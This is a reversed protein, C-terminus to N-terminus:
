VRRVEYVYRIEMREQYESCSDYVVVRVAGYQDASGVRGTMVIRLLRHM